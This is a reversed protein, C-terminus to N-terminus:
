EKEFVGAAADYEARKKSLARWEGSAVYTFMVNITALIPVAFLAGPIGAVYSGAAVGLVVALPHVKVATGMVLPQLVHAELLHVGLVGGLMIVAQIPGVYVLAIAVAIVGTAIAGVVPIFSALFVVIAIPIALPLGLFFAFLGIGVANVAAVFVQVRVFTTLTLWGAKGAGDVATRARRPFLKTVWRWVGTGDILLFITSFLVLLAGTLLHLGSTGITLAGSALNKSDSQIATGVQALYSNFQSDSVQLPSTKLFVRFNTYASVSRKELDPLGARVQLVVLYILGGVVVIFVVLAIVISLWKPLGHRRLFNSFPVLLASILLAVMFPIVIERLNVILLGFVVLTGTLALIRWAWQGAIEVAVPISAEVRAKRLPATPVLEPVRVAATKSRGWLGMTNM